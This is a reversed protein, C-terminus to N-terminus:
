DSGPERTFLWSTHAHTLTYSSRPLSPDPSCPLLGTSGGASPTSWDFRWLRDSRNQATARSQEEAGKSSAKKSGEHRCLLLLLGLVLLLILPTRNENVGDRAFHPLPAAYKNLSRDLLNQSISACRLLKAGGEGESHTQESDSALKATPFDGDEKNKKKKKGPQCGFIWL